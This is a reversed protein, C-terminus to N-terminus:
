VMIKEFIEDYEKPFLITDAHEVGIKQILGVFYIERSWWIKDVMTGPKEPFPYSYIDSGHPIFVNIKKGLLVLLAPAIDTGIYFDCDEFITALEKTPQSPSIPAM